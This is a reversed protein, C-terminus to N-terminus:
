PRGALGFRTLCVHKVLSAAAIAIAPSTAYPREDGTDAPDRFAGEVYQAHCEDYKNCVALKTCVTLGDREYIYYTADSYPPRAFTETRVTMASPADPGTAWAPLAFGSTLALTLAFTRM